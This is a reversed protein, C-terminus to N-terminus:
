FKCYDNFINMDLSHKGEKTVKKGSQSSLFEVKSAHEILQTVLNHMHALSEKVELEVM